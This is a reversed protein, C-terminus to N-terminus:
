KKKKLQKQLTEGKTTLRYKQKPSNPSGPQTMEILKNKMAPQLYNQLFNRRGKLGLSRMIESVPMENHIAKIMNNVQEGVQEGVQPTSPRYLVSRFDESQIFQPEPLGAAISKKVMDSTGTGMREIYGALYLPEALLPNAPVSTHLQKLKETTWGLPLSGPNRIELRDKFLMVRVSFKEDDISALTATEHLGADFPGSRIIEKEELYRVLAAYVASKLEDVTNFKKRILVEQAKNIFRNEKLHREEQKHNTLFVLRTKHLDTAHNFELETPSIGEETEYGYTKGFM